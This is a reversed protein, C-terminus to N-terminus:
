GALFKVTVTTSLRVSEPDFSLIEIGQQGRGGHVAVRSRFVATSGGSNSNGDLVEVAEPKGRGLVAAYDGAKVIADKVAGRRSEGALSAKTAETLRWEVQDISILPMTSLTTAL